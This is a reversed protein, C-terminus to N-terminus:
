SRDSAVALLNRATNRARNNISENNRRAVRRQIARIENETHGEARLTAYWQNRGLARKRNNCCACATVYNTVRDAGGRAAAEYHDLNAAAPNNNNAGVVVECQCYVCRFDDRVYVTGRQLKTAEAGKRKGQM